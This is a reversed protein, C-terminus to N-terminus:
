FCLGKQVACNIARPKQRRKRGANDIDIRVHHNDAATNRTDLSGQFQGVGALFNIQHFFIGGDAAVHRLKIFGKGRQVARGTNKGGLHVSNQLMWINRQHGITFNTFDFTKHTIKIYFDPLLGAINVVIFAICAQGARFFTGTLSNGLPILPQDFALSNM